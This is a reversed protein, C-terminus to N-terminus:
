VLKESAVGDEYIKCVKEMDDTLKEFLFTSVALCNLVFDMRVGCGMIRNTAKKYAGSGEKIEGSKVAQALQATKSTMEKIASDLPGRYESLDGKGLRKGINVLHRTCNVMHVKTYEHEQISQHRRKDLLDDYNISNKAVDIVIGASKLQKDFEQITGTILSDSPDFVIKKVSGVIDFAHIALKCVDMWVHMPFAEVESNYVREVNISDLSGAIKRAWLKAITQQRLVLKSLKNRAFLYMKRSYKAVKFFVYKAASFISSAIEAFGESAPLRNDGFIENRYLLYNYQKLIMTLDNSEDEEGEDMEGFDMDGAEDEEDDVTGEAPVVESSTIAVDAADECGEKIIQPVGSPTGYEFNVINTFQVAPATESIEDFYDDAKERGEEFGREFVEPLSIDDDFYIENNEMRIDLMDVTLLAKPREKEKAEVELRKGIQYFIKASDGMFNVPLKGYKSGHCIRIIEEPIKDINDKTVVYEKGTLETVQGIVKSAEKTYQRVNTVRVKIKKEKLSVLKLMVCYIKPFEGGNVAKEILHRAVRGLKFLKGLVTTISFGYWMTADEIDFSEGTEDESEKEKDVKEEQIEEEAEDLENPTYSKGPTDGFTQIRENKEDEMAMGLILDYANTDKNNM